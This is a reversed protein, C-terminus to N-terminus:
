AAPGVPNDSTRANRSVPKTASTIAGDFISAIGPRSVSVSRMSLLFSAIYAAFSKSDEM